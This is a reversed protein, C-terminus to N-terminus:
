LPGLNLWSKKQEKTVTNKELFAINSGKWRVQGSDKNHNGQSIANDITNQLIWLWVGQVYPWM